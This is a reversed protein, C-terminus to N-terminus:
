QPVDSRLGVPGMKKGSSAEVPPVDSSLDVPGLQTGSSAEIHLYLQSFTMRVWLSLLHRSSRMYYWEQGSSEEVQSVDSWLDTQGLSQGFTM